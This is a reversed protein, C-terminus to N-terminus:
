GESPHESVETLNLETLLAKALAIKDGNKGEPRWENVPRRMFANDVTGKHIADKNPVPLGVRPAVEMAWRTCASKNAYHEYDRRICYVVAWMSDTTFLARHKSIAAILAEEDLKDSAPQVKEPATYSVQANAGEIVILQHITAGRSLIEILEKTMNM